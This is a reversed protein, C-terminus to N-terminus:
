TFVLRKNGFFSLVMQLSTALLFGLRYDLAYHDTWIYLVSAHLVAILLYLLLFKLLQKLVSETRARFVFYRSGLFSTGIGFVAAISNALAASPIKLVEINFSLVSYHIGTAVLGNLGYRLIQSM